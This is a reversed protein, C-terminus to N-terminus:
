RADRVLPVEAWSTRRGQDHLEDYRGGGLAARSAQQSVEMIRRDIEVPVFGGRESLEAVFGWLLAANVHDDRREAIMAWFASSTSRSFLDAHDDLASPTEFDEIASDIDGRELHIMAKNWGTTGPSNPGLITEARAASVLAEDLRGLAREAVIRFLLLMAEEWEDIPDHGDAFEVVGEYDGGLLNFGTRMVDRHISVGAAAAEDALGMVENQADVTNM